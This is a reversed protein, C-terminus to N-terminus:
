DSRPTRSRFSREILLDEGEWAAIKAETMYHERDGFFTVETETSVKWDGREVSLRRLTELRAAAPNRDSVKYRRITEGGTQLGNDEALTVAAKDTVAYITMANAIDRTVERSSEAPRLRRRALAEAGDPPGFGTWDEAESPMQPLTLKSASAALTLALPERSPWLLPWYSTSLALRLRHGAALRHAVAGFALTVEMEEGPVMPKPEGYGDRLALNLVGLAIRTSRGDPAVDCLRAVCFGASQQAALRLALSPTGLITLPASLAETEFCLSRADDCRQDGPLDAGWGMPMIEGGATGLDPPTAIEFRGKGAAPGLRGADGLHLSTESAEQLPWNPLAVWRGPRESESNEEPPYSDALFVRLAPAEEAGNRANRLWRDFWLTCLNCWDIAPGPIGMHPFKHAWPGVIGRVLDPQRAVMRLVSAAFVDATGGAALTPVALGDPADCPFGKTWFSDRSPHELWDPLVWDLHELRDRWLDRWGSGVIAPDPPRTLFSLLTAAWGIHESAMVGGMFHCDEAFRDDTAGAVAVAKLAAPPAAAAQLASFGGWSLGYMGLAGSCWEQAAIWDIVEIADAREQDSYEDSIRGQSDGSGRTDVRIAVYGKEAFYGHAIEDREATSYRKPYPHYELIAPQPEDGEPFWVRASLETGDTLPIRLDDEIRVGRAGSEEAGGKEVRGEEVRDEEM